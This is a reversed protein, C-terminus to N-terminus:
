IVVFDDKTGPRENDQLLFASDETTNLHKNEASIFAVEVDSYIVACKQYALALSIV